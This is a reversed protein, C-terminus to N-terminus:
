KLLNMKILFIIKKFFIQQKLKEIEMEMEMKKKLFKKISIILKIVQVSATSIPTIKEFKKEKILNQHLQNFNKNFEEKTIDYLKIKIDIDSAEIMLGTIFSGYLDISYNILNNEYTKNIIIKLEDICYNKFKTLNQLIMNVNKENSLINNHM